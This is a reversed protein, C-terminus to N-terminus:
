TSVKLEKLLDIVKEAVKLPPTATTNVSLDCDRYYDAREQLLDKMKEVRDPVDILPRTKSRATRKVIDDVSSTLLVIIGIERMMQRNQERIVAGGGTSLVLTGPKYISLGGLVGSELERFVEEGDESFIRAVSKGAKVEVLKDTDLFCRGTRRALIMGTETKGTGMFGTLIIHKSKLHDLIATGESIHKNTNNYLQKIPHRM